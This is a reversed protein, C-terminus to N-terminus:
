FMKTDKLARFINTDSDFVQIRREKYLLGVATGMQDGWGDKSGSTSEMNRRMPWHDCIM